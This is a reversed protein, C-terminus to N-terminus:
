AVRSRRCEFVIVHFVLDVVVMAPTERSAAVAFWSRNRIHVRPTPILITQIGRDEEGSWVTATTTFSKTWRHLRPYRTLMASSSSSDRSWLITPSAAHNQDGASSVGELM